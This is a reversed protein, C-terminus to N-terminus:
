GIVMEVQDTRIIRLNEGLEISLDDESPVFAVRQGRKFGSSGPAEVIGTKTPMKAGDPLALFEHDVNSLSIMLNGLTPVVINGVLKAVISDNWPVKEYVGTDSKDGMQGNSAQYLSPDGHVGYFRVQRETTYGGSSFGDFWAGHYPRVLVADGPKIDMKLSDGWKNRPAQCGIVIGVDCRLKGSVKNPLYIRGIRDPSETMEVAVKGPLCTVADFARQSVEPLEYGSVQLTNANHM